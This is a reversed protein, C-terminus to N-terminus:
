FKGVIKLNLRRGTLYNPVGYLNNNLDEIWIYSATNNVQLLNFVELSLWLSNLRSLLLNDPNKAKLIEKSFGIDVRRYAPLKFHEEYRYPGNFYYPLSSGIILSLNMKFSPDSPLQDQFLVSFMVRQDTPRRIFGSQKVGEDDTFTINEKTSLFSLNVWSELGKIFEGNVRFDAGGAYGYSSNVADYRLRVNNIVYPVLDNLKKFYAEGIFRFNRRWAKFLVDTGFVFHISRQARLDLNLAGQLNRLERYFPPQYYYGSAFRFTINKKLNNEAITDLDGYIKRLSDKANISTFSDYMMLCARYITDNYKKNPQFSFNGRPSIVNQGNLSWYHTRLGLNLSFANEPNIMIRDQVFAMLRYSHLNARSSVYDDLVIERPDHSLSTTNYGASDNYNWEHLKDHINEFQVKSGWEFHHSYLGKDFYHNGVLSHSSVDYQLKNRAYNIFYGYGLLAKAQAFNASGLNNELEELRYAGEITNYERENSNFNTSIWKVSNTKWKNKYELTFANLFTNYQMLESGDFGVFLRIANQLTGFSTSRSEPVVLYQNKAYTTFYHASFRTNIRYNFMGQVDVFLPKYDGAVDLSKLVYQLTRYRVGVLYSFRGGKFPQDELHLSAGLISLSATGAFKTPQRYQVDLVSSLKDGYKAEFGGASFTVKETLDPNVFSLGEQQGSRALFPRYVQIGNVYILNEDFNGGRVNYSSSLENTRSIGIFQKTLLDEFQLSPTLYVEDKPHVVIQPIETRIREINVEKTTQVDLDFIFDRKLREGSHEILVTKKSVQSFFTAKVITEKNVAIKIEFAGDEKTAMAFSDNVYIAVGALPIMDQDKVHGYVIGQGNARSHFILIIFVPLSWIQWSQLRYSQM